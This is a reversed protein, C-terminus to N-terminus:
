HYISDKSQESSDSAKKRRSSWRIYDRKRGIKLAREGKYSLPSKTLSLTTFFESIEKALNKDEDSLQGFKDGKRRAIVLSSAQNRDTDVMRFPALGQLFPSRRELFFFDKQKLVEKTM